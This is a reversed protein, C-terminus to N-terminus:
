AVLQSHGRANIDLSVPGPLWHHAICKSIIRSPEYLVRLTNKRKFEGGFAAQRVHIGTLAQQYWSWYASSSADSIVLQLFARVGALAAVGRRYTM